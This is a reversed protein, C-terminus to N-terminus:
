GAPDADWPEPEEVRREVREGRALRGVGEEVIDDPPPFRSSPRSEPNPSCSVPRPEGIAAGSPFAM